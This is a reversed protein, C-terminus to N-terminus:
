TYNLHSASAIMCSHNHAISVKVHPSFALVASSAEARGLVAEGRHVDIKLAFNNLSRATLPVSEGNIALSLSKRCSVIGEPLKTELTDILNHCELVDLVEAIWRSLNSGACLM